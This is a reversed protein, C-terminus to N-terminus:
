KNSLTCRKFTITTTGLIESYMSGSCAGKVTVEDGAKVLKAADAEKGDFSFNIFSGGPDTFKFNVTTDGSVTIDATKGKVEIIKELYKKNAASDGAAFEKMLADATVTFDAKVKATDSFEEGAIKQQIIMFGAIAFVPGALALGAKKLLSIRTSFVLLVAAAIFVFILPSLLGFVSQGVGLDVLTKSFLIYVAALSLSLLATIWATWNSNKGAATLGITVAALVPILWFIAFSFSLGPMPNSLSFKDASVAFFKGSPFEYGSVATGAWSVWPLFFVILVVGSAIAPLWRSLTNTQNNPSMSGIVVRLGYQNRVRFCIYL